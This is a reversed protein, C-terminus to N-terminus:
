KTEKTTITELIAEIVESKHRETWRHAMVNTYTEQEPYKEDLIDELAILEDSNLHEEVELFQAPNTDPNWLEGDERRYAPSIWVWGMWEALRKKNDPTM